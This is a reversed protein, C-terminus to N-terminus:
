GVLMPPQVTLAQRHKTLGSQFDRSLVLRPLRCIMDSAKLSTVAAPSLTESTTIPGARSTVEM